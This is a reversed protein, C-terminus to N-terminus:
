QNYKSTNEITYPFDIKSQSIIFMKKDCKYCINDHYFYCFNDIITLFLAKSEELKIQKSKM